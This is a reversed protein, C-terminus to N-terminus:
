WYLMKNQWHESDSSPTNVQTYINTNIKIIMLKHM